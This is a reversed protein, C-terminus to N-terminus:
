IPWRGLKYKPITEAKLFKCNGIDWGHQLIEQSVLLLLDLRSSARCAYRMVMVYVRGSVKACLEQTCDIRLVAVMTTPWLHSLAEVSERLILM